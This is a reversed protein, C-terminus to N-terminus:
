EHGARRKRLWGGLLLAMGLPMMVWVPWWLQGTQPIGPGAPVDSDEQEGPGDPLDPGDPFDPNDPPDPIGPEEPSNAVVFTVGKQYISVTYGEPVDEVVAWNKEEDLGDWTFRWNTNEGLEVTDYVAGDCLLHIVVSQPRQQEMGADNWVKLVKRTVTQPESPIPEKESKPSVVVHYQSGTPVSILAPETTYVTGNQRHAHGVLLYLGPMLGQFILRGDDDTEGQQAPILHDRCAYAYLTSALREMGQSDLGNVSVPYGAFDGHLSYGGDDSVSAVDYLDFAAGVLATGGRSYVIEINGKAETATASNVLVGSVVSILLIKLFFQKLLRKM